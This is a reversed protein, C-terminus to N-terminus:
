ITLGKSGTAYLKGRGNGLARKLFHVYPAIRRQALIEWNSDKM